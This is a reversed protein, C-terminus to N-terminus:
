WWEARGGVALKENITYFLFYNLGISEFNLHVYDSQLVYNLNDTVAFDALISHNYGEGNVGIDRALAIYTLTLMDGIGQSVGYIAASGRSDDGDSFRDFGTDCGAVWGGYLTTNEGANYTAVVGTHTFPESNYMTFAHSYFF